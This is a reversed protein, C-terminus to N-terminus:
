QEAVIYAIWAPDADGTSSPEYIGNGEGDDDTRTTQETLVGGQWVETNEHVYRYATIGLLR